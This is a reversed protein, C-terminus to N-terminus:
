SRACDDNHDGASIVAGLKERAEIQRDSRVCRADPMPLEDSSLWRPSGKKTPGVVRRAAIWDDLCCAACNQAARIAVMTFLSAAEALWTPRTASRTVSTTQPENIMREDTVITCQKREGQITIVDEKVDVKVDDKNLGPLDARVLLQDETEVVDIRPSWEGPVFGAERRLLEHGRTLFEANPLGDPPRLERLSPGDGRRVPAHLCLM